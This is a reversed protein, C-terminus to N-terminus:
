TSMTRDLVQSALQQLLCCEVLIFSGVDGFEKDGVNLSLSLPVLVFM